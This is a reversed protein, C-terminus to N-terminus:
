HDGKYQPMSDIEGLARPHYIAPNADGGTSRRYLGREGISGEYSIVIQTEREFTEQLRHFTSGKGTLM